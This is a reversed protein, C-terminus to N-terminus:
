VSDFHLRKIGEQYALNYLSLKEPKITLTKSTSKLFGEFDAAVM